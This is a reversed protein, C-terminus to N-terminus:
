KAEVKPGTLEARLRSVAEQSDLSFENKRLIQLEKGSREFTRSYATTDLDGTLLFLRQKPRFHPILEGYHGNPGGLSGFIVIDDENKILRAVAEASTTAHRFSVDRLTGFRETIREQWGAGVESVGLVTLIKLMHICYLSIGNAKPNPSSRGSSDWVRPM